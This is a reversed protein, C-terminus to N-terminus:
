FATPDLRADALEAGTVGAIMANVGVNPLLVAVTSPKVTWILM